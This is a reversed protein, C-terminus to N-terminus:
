RYIHPHVPVNDGVFMVSPSEFPYREPFKFRLKYKEGDYLTGPAGTFSIIWVSINGKKLNFWFM